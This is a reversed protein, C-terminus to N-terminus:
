LDFVAGDFGTCNLGSMGVQTSVIPTRTPVPTPVQTPAPTPVLTPAPIPAATPVYACVSSLCIAGAYCDSDATCADGVQCPPCSDGGCDTDSETGDTVGNM